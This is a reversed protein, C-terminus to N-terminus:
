HSFHDANFKIRFNFGSLALSAQKEKPGDKWLVTSQFQIFDVCEQWPFFGSGWSSRLSHTLPALPPCIAWYEVRRNWLWDTWQATRRSSVNARTVTVCFKCTDNFTGLCTARDQGGWVYGCSSTMIFPVVRISRNREYSLSAKWKQLQHEKQLSKTQKM